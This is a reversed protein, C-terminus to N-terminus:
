PCGSFLCTLFPDIDFFNVGSDSNCDANALPCGPFAVQYGSPDFLALLFPDIDFFNVSGDCNVDGHLVCEDPYNDGNVDHLVGGALDCGDFVGNNNCDGLDLEVVDMDVPPSKGNAVWLNYMILGTGNAATDRLFEAYEKSTAQYLLTVKTRVANCPVTYQVDDWYQGNPYYCAVPAAQAAAFAANDFGRPPIRNDKIWRNNLAFHFSEGPPLGTIAAMTEDLGLKAEYVETDSTTLAGTVPDYAGREAVLVDAADYFQVNIWMRRGEPYGTPLKHGTQNIIRVNIRDGGVTVEMDSAARLMTKNRTKAADVDAPTLGSGEYPEYLEGSQDLQLIADLVWTAAGSFDHQPLDTRTAGGLGPMCATGTITPMHCHQCTSVATRNGGYRGGMEIPGAAFASNAWESYTREVPFEEYKDHTPHPQDLGHQGSTDAVVYTDSPAPVPGGVRKFVPNSVDHCTACLLAERHFPSQRWEHYQFNPGLDFPGRRRDLPDIVYM